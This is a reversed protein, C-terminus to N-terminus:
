WSWWEARKRHQRWEASRRFQRASGGLGGQQATQGPKGDPNTKLRNLAEAIKDRNQYGAVALLGLLAIMSPMGRSM